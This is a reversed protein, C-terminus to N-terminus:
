SMFVTFSKPFCGLLTRYTNVFSYIISSTFHPRKRKGANRQLTERTEASLFRQPHHFPALVLLYFWAKRIKM